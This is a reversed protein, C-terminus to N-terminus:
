GADDRLIAVYAIPVPAHEFQLRVELFPKSLGDRDLHIAGCRVSAEVAAEHAPDVVQLEPDSGAPRVIFEAEVQHSSSYIMRPSPPPPMTPNWRDAPHRKGEYPDPPVEYLRSEMSVILTAPGPTLRATIEGSARLWSGVDGSYYVGQRIGKEPIVEHRVGELEVLWDVLSRVYHKAERRDPNIKSRAYAAFPLVDGQVVHPRVALGTTVSATWVKGWARDSLANEEFAWRLYAMWPGGPDEKTSGFFGHSARQAVVEAVAEAARYTPGDGERELQILQNVADAVDVRHARSSIAAILRERQHQPTELRPHLSPEASATRAPEGLAGCLTVCACLILRRAPLM